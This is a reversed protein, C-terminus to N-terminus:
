PLSEEFFRRVNGGMVARIDSESLGAEILQHTIVALQSTDFATAVTGDYDSGLAVAKVGMLDIAKVIANAIGGPTIDCVAGEFYGIGVIGGRQAIRRLLADPLNRQRSAVCDDRMGGHSIFVPGGEPMDLVDRSVAESAHALDVAIDLRWMERVAEVGFETLGAGSQGHLSGGLENDFFHQLGMARYGEDFLRRVNAVDGELPHAGETLLLGVLTGDPQDLDAATRAIVLDNAPDAEYRALRQAQFVAREYVSQWTRPPWLQALAVLTIDDPADAANEAFNLGRPSKTVASFVQLDVGGERLRPLDVHGRDQRKSADRRWMLSDAHLDAVYLTDHLKQAAEGVEYPGLDAVPNMRADTGPVFVLQLWAFAAVLLVASGILIKKIM